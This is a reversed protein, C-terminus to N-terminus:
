DAGVDSEGRELAAGDEAHPVGSLPCPPSAEQKVTFPSSGV